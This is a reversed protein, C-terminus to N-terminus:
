MIVNKTCKRADLTMESLLSIFTENTTIVISWRQSYKIWQLKSFASDYPNLAKHSLNQLLGDIHYQISGRSTVSRAYGEKDTGLWNKHVHCTAYERHGWEM